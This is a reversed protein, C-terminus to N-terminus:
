IFYESVLSRYYGNATKSSFVSPKKSFAAGAIHSYSPLEFIEKNQTASTWKPFFFEVLDMKHDAKADEIIATITEQAQRKQAPTISEGNFFIPLPTPSALEPSHERRKEGLNPFISTMAMAANQLSAIGNHKSPMLVVDSVAISETTFLTNGPPSDILIYDYTNRLGSLVKQFRGRRLIDPLDPSEIDLSSSASIVDFGVSKGGAVPVRYPHIVDTISQNRHDNLYDFFSLGDHKIGLLDTLDKQNPDFDVVLVKKGFGYPFPLALVGALNITTTTKGVGGKNNYVSVCLAKETNDIYSKIIGIKEDITEINLEMLTTYPYVVKGHRRFLQIYYGNTIIGWKVTACNTAAPSLYRKLQRVVDKYPKKKSALDYERRKLEVILFPNVETYTFIDDSSTNKRVALDVKDAGKGTGYQGCIEDDEFGLFPFVAKRMLLAAIKSELAGPPLSLWAEQLPSMPM